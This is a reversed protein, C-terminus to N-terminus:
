RNNVPKKSSVEARGVVGDVIGGIEELFRKKGLVEEVRKLVAQEMVELM